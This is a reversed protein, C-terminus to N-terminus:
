VVKFRYENVNLKLKWHYNVNFPTNSLNIWPELYSIYLTVVHSTATLWFACLCKHSAVLDEIYSLLMHWCAGDISDPTYTTPWNHVSQKLNVDYCDRVTLLLQFLQWPCLATRRSAIVSAWFWVLWACDSWWWTPTSPALSTTTFLAGKALVGQQPEQQQHFVEAPLNKLLWRQPKVWCMEWCDCFWGLSYCSFLIRNLCRTYSSWLRLLSFSCCIVSVGMIANFRVRSFSLREGRIIM